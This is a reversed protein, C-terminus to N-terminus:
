NSLLNTMKKLFNFIQNQFRFVDFTLFSAAPSTRVKTLLAFQSSEIQQSARYEMHKEFPRTSKKQEIELLNTITWERDIKKFIVSSNRGAAALHVVERFKNNGSIVHGLLLDTASITGAKHNVKM